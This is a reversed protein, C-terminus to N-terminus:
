RALRLIGIRLARGQQNLLFRYAARGKWASGFLSDPLEVPPLYAIDFPFAGVLRPRDEGLSEARPTAAPPASTGSAVGGPIPNGCGLTVAAMLLLGLALLRGPTRM